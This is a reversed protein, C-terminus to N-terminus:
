RACGEQTVIELAECAGVDAGTLRPRALPCREVGPPFDRRRIALAKRRDSDRLGVRMALRYIGVRTHRTSGETDGERARKGADPPTRTPARVGVLDAVRM